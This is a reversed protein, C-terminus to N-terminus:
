ANERAGGAQEGILYPKPIAGQERELAEAEAELEVAKLVHALRKGPDEIREAEDSLRKARARMIDPHTM